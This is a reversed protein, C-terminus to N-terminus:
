NDVKKTYTNQQQHITHGMKDAIDKMEEDQSQKAINTPHYSLYIKRLITPSLRTYGNEMFIKEIRKSLANKTMGLLFLPKHGNPPTHLKINHKIINNLKTPIEFTRTETGRKVLHKGFSFFPKKTNGVYLIRNDKTEQSFKDYDKKSTIMMEAYELRKPPMLTYLSIILYKIYDVQTGTANAVKGLKKQLDMIKDWETWKMKDNESMKGNSISQQYIDNENLLFDKYGKYTDAHETINVGKPSLCVLISSIYKKRVSNSKGIFYEKVKDIDLLFNNNEYAVGTMDKAMKNLVQKYTNLSSEKVKRHTKITELLADM